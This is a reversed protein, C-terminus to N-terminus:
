NVAPTARQRPQRGSLRGCHTAVGTGHRHASVLQDVHAAAGRRHKAACAILPGLLDIKNIAAVHTKAFPQGLGMNKTVIALLFTLAQTKIPQSAEGLSALKDSSALAVAAQICARSDPLCQSLSCCPLPLTTKTCSYCTVATASSLCKAILVAVSAIFRPM